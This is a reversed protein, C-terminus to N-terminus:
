AALACGILTNNKLQKAKLLLLDFQKMCMQVVHVGYVPTSSGNFHESSLLLCVCARVCSVSSSFSRVCFYLFIIFSLRLCTLCNVVLPVVRGHRSNAQKNKTLSLIYREGATDKSTGPGQVGTKRTMGPSKTMM